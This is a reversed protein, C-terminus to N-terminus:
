MGQILKIIITGLSALKPGMVVSMVIGLGIGCFVTRFPHDRMMKIIGWRAENKKHYVQHELMKGLLDSYKKLLRQELGYLLGLLERNNDNLKKSPTM